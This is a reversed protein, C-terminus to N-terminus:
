EESERTFLDWPSKRSQGGKVTKDLKIILHTFERWVKSWLFSNGPTMKIVHLMYLIILIISYTSFSFLIDKPTDPNKKREIHANEAGYGKNNTQSNKGKALKKDWDWGAERLVQPM